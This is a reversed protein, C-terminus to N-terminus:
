RRAEEQKLRIRLKLAARLKPATKARGTFKNLYWECSEPPINGICVGRYEGFPWRLSLLEQENLSAEKPSWFGSLSKIKEKLGEVISNDTVRERIDIDIHPANGRKSRMKSLSYDRREKFKPIEIVLVSGVSERSIHWNVRTKGEFDHAMETLVRRVVRTNTQSRQAVSALDRRLVNKVGHKHMLELLSYWIDISVHGQTKCLHRLWNDDRADNDHTFWPLRNM